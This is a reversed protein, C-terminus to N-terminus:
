RGIISSSSVQGRRAALDNMFRGGNMDNNISTKIMEKLANMFQYDNLLANMDINKSSNGGDLKLTGSLNINFDKVTITNGNITSTNSGNPKYIYEPKEGVVPKSKVEATKSMVSTISNMTKNDTLYVTQAQMSIDSLNENLNSTFLSKIGSLVDKVVTKTGSYADSVATKAGDYTRSVVNSIGNWVGEAVTGISNWVGEAVTGIGNWVGEAVTGIGNWVGEAVTGIGNWIGSAVTGIGDWIGSAVTGIGDWIGSAVTGIGNWVGEAVTGIGDWIGSAVTGIGDWIGSAVTGIGNWVGEAVTGIGDWIGSAVIGIGDWIKKGVKKATDWASKAFAKTNEWASKAFAKTNEWASKAIDTVTDWNEGILKGGIGGLWGGVATGIPGGIFTGITAGIATGIGEGVSANKEKRAEDVQTDYEAKSIAGSNLQEGLEKKKNNYDSYSSIANYAGIGIGLAAGGIKLGKSASTGLKGILGKSAKAGLGGPGGIGGLLPKAILKWGAIAILLEKWHNSVFNFVKTVGDLIGSAINKITEGNKNIWAMAEGIVKGTDAGWVKAYESFFDGLGQIQKGIDDIYPQIGEAFSAAVQSQAGEIHEDISTLKASQELMIDKDSMNAIRQMEDILKPSIGEQNVNHEVGKADTYVLEGNKVQSNNILFNKQDENLGYRDLTSGFQNEKYKVEAQKKAMKSAEEVSIGMAKAINRVFDMNMGNINSMGTKADFTAYSGLSDSMRKAFAEPDYNAEYAATLPNGFNAAASGGLMQMQAANEIAKDLDMFQGAASEVSAMNIGLKESLAAMRTLGNIGNRFSLRNAMGLNQAVKDTLKKANLGQKAATAYVKSIAGQVTDIQGGMGNMIEETFKSANQAGVLKNIQVFGEAQADNLMLQKGTAESLGRQVQAIAEASVGYKNALVQTRQILTETYAQAQKASLGVERAFAVGQKHFQIAAQFGKQMTSTVLGFLSNFGSGLVGLLNTLFNM